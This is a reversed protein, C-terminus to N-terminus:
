TITKYVIIYPSIELACLYLIFYFFHSFILNGNTKYSYFLAIGNFVILIGVFGLLLHLSPALTYLFISNIILVLIALLNRYSLKQYLYQNVLSDISFISGVIKEISFKVGIFVSYVTVIQVYLWKNKLAITSDYTKILLYILLSFSLVQFVFLLLNFPHEIRDNKGHILFYKNTIPLQIFEQFRKPYAYKTFALLLICGMIVLTIWDTSIVSRELYQVM